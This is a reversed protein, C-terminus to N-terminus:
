QDEHMTISWDHIFMGVVFAVFPTPQVSSHPGSIKPLIPSHIYHYPTGSHLLLLKCVCLSMTFNRGHFHSTSIPFRKISELSLQVKRNSAPSTDVSDFLCSPNQYWRPPGLLTHPLHREWYVPIQNDSFRANQHHSFFTSRSTSLKKIARLFVYCFVKEPCPHRKDLVSQMKSPSTPCICDSAPSKHHRVFYALTSSPPFFTSADM